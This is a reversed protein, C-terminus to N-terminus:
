SFMKFLKQLGFDVDVGAVILEFEVFFNQVWM